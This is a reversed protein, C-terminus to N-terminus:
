AEPPAAIIEAALLARGFPEIVATVTKVEKESFFKAEIPKLAEISSVAVFQAIM